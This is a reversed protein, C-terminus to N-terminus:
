QEDNHKNDKIETETTIACLYDNERLKMIKVGSTVRGTTKIESSSIRVMQGRASSCIIDNDAKLLLSSIVLGTNTTLRMAKVGKTYRKTTRYESVRSIKGYGNKTALFLRDQNDVILASVVHADEKLQIGKVGMSTRSTYRVQSVEFKVAYGASSCIMLQDEDRAYLVSRVYDEAQITIVRLGNSRINTLSSSDIRKIIGRHTILIVAQQSPTSTILIITEDKDLPLFNNIPIGTATVYISAVPITYVKGSSSYALIKQTRCVLITSLIRDTRKLNTSKKGLTGRHQATYTSSPSCKIYGEKSLSVIMNEPRVIGYNQPTENIIETRRPIGHLERIERIDDQVFKLINDRSSLIVTRSAIIAELEECRERIKHSELSSLRGLRMNLIANIQEKSLEIDSVAFAKHVAATNESSRIIRIVQEINLIAIRLGKAIHLASQDSALKHSLNKETVEVRFKVFQHLYDKLNFTLPVGDIIAVQNAYFSYEIKTKNRLIQLSYNIDASSNFKIEIATGKRDSQDTVRVIGLEKQELALKAIQQVLVSKNVHYPITTIIASNEKVEINSRLVVEGRGSSLYSRIGSTNYIQGGQPFDPGPIIDLLEDVTIDPNDIYAITASCLERLNHPLVNSAMGVAIGKEGNLMLLPLRSPLVVPMKITNDYNDVYDVIHESLDSVLYESIRSLKVGTYRQAAPQDGDISGFNGQGEILRHNIAFPQALRVMTEYVASDGHPHYKSIVDGVTRASKKTGASYFNGNQYMSYIIRRQVPKLGDRIDPLARSVIVSMSYALYSDQMEKVLSKVPAEPVVPAELEVTKTAQRKIM